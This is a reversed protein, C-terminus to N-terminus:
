MRVMRRRSLGDIALRRELWVRAPPGSTRAGRRFRVASSGDAAAAISGDGVAWSAAVRAVLTSEEAAAACSAAPGDGGITTAWSTCVEVEAKANVSGENTASTLMDM